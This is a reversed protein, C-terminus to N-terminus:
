LASTFARIQRVCPRQAAVKGVTKFPTRLLRQFSRKLLAPAALTYIYTEGSFGNDCGCSTHAKDRM